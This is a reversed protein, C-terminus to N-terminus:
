RIRRYRRLMALSPALAPPCVRTEGTAAPQWRYDGLRTPRFLTLANRPKANSIASPAESEGGVLKSFVISIRDPAIRDPIRIRVGIRQGVQHLLEAEVRTNDSFASATALQPTCELRNDM